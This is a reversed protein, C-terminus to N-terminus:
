TTNLHEVGYSRNTLTFAAQHKLAENWRRCAVCTRMSSSSSFSPSSSSFILAMRSLASYTISKEHWRIHTNCTNSWCWTLKTYTTYKYAGYTEIRPVFQGLSLHLLSLIQQFFIHELLFFLFQQALFCLHRLEPAFLLLFIGVIEYLLPSFIFPLIIIVRVNEDIIVASCM